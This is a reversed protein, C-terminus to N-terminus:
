KAQLIHENTLRIKGHFPPALWNLKLHIKKRGVLGSRNTYSIHFYDLITLLDLDLDYGSEEDNEFDM